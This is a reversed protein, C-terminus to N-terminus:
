VEISHTIETFAFAIEFFPLGTLSTIQPQVFTGFALLGHGDRILLLEGEWGEITEKVTRSVRPFSVSWGRVKGAQKVFQIRGGARVRAEGRIGGSQEVAVGANVIIQKTYDSVPALHVGSLTVSAM